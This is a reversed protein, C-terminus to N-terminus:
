SLGVYHILRVERALAFLLFGSLEADECAVDSHNRTPWVSLIKIGLSWNDQCFPCPWSATGNKPLSPLCLSEERGM